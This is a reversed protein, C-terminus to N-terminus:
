QRLAANEEVLSATRCHCLVRYEYELICLQLRYMSLIFRFILIAGHIDSVPSGLRDLHVNTNSPDKEGALWARIYRQTLGTLSTHWLQILLGLKNKAQRALTTLLWSGAGHNESPGQILLLTGLNREYLSGACSWERPSGVKARARGNCISPSQILGM